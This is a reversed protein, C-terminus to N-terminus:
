HQQRDPHNPALSKSFDALLWKTLAIKSYSGDTFNGSYLGAWTWEGGSEENLMFTVVGVSSPSGIASLPIRNEFYEGAQYTDLTVGSVASWTAGTSDVQRLAQYSNDAKWSYYYDPRMSTASFDPKQSGFAEGATAGKGASPDTDLYMIIWKTTSASAVDTGAYGLYLYDKDWSVYVTFGTSTTSFAERSSNFDNTGDITITHKYAGSDSSFAAEPRSAEVGPLGSEPVVGVDIADALGDGHRSDPRRPTDTPCGGGGLLVLLLQLPLLLARALTAPKRHPRPTASM